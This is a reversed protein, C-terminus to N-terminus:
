PTHVHLQRAKGIGIIYDTCEAQTIGLDGALEAILGPVHEWLWDNDIRDDRREWEGVLFDTLVHDYVRLFSDGEYLITSGKHIADLDIALGRLGEMGSPWYDFYTDDGGPLYGSPDLSVMMSAAWATFMQQITYLPGDIMVFTGWEGFDEEFPKYVEEPLTRMDHLPDKRPYNVQDGLDEKDFTYYTLTVGEPDEGWSFETHGFYVLIEAMNVSTCPSNDGERVYTRMVTM